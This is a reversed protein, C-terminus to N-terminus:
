GEPKLTFTLSVSCLKELGSFLLTLRQYDDHLSGEVHPYNTSYCRFYDITQQDGTVEWSKLRSYLEKIQSPFNVMMKLEKLQEITIMKVLPPSSFRAEIPDKCPNSLNSLKKNTLYYINSGDIGLFM